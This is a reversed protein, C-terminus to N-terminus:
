KSQLVMNYTVGDEEAQVQIHIMQGDKQFQLMQAEEEQAQFTVKWGKEKIKTKFFDAVADLKAGKVVATAMVGDGMDMSQQVKSNPYLPMDKLKDPLDVAAFASTVAFVTLLLLVAVLSGSSRIM